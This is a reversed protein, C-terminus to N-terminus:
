RHGGHDWADVATPANDPSLFSRGAMPGVDLHAIQALSPLVDISRVLRDSYGGQTQGPLKVILPTHMIDAATRGDIRHPDASVRGMSQGNDATIVVLARNWLGTAELRAVLDGVLRDVVEIQMLYRQETQRLFWGDFNRWFAARSIAPGRPNYRHESPSYWYPSHPLLVQKFHLRPRTTPKIERLWREFRGIRGSGLSDLVAQRTLPPRNGPCPAM